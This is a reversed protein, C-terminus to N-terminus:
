IDIGRVILTMLSDATGLKNEIVVKYEGYDKPGVTLILLSCVGCVNRIHYNTNTSLSINNHYWTVRPAPDGRVACSMHSEYGQPATRAKLPVLFSPQSQFDLPKTEPRDVQFKGPVFLCAFNLTVYEATIIRPPTYEMELYLTKSLMWAM